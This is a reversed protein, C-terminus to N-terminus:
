FCILVTINSQIRVDDMENYNLILQGAVPLGPIIAYM